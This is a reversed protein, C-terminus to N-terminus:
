AVSRTFKEDPQQSIWIDQLDITARILEAGTNGAHSAVFRLEYDQGPVMGTVTQEIYSGGGPLGVFRDGYGSSGAGGTVQTAGNRIVYPTILGSSWGTPTASVYERAGAADDDEFGSNAFSVPTMEIRVDDVLVVGEASGEIIVDLVRASARFPMSYRRFDTASLLQTKEDTLACACANLGGNSGCIRAQNCAPDGCCYWGGDADCKQSGSCGNLGNSPIHGASVTVSASSSGPGAAALFSLTYPTDTHFGDVVQLVNKGKQIELYYPGATSGALATSKKTAIGDSGWSRWKELCRASTTSISEGHAGELAGLGDVTCSLSTLFAAFDADVSQAGGVCTCLDDECPEGAELDASDCAPFGKFGPVLAKQLLPMCGFEPFNNEVVQAKLAIQALDLPGCIKSKTQIKRVCFQATENFTETGRGDHLICDLDASVTDLVTPDALQVGGLCKCLDDECLGDAGNTCAGFTSGHAAASLVEMCNFQPFRADMEVGLTQIQRIQDKDCSLDVQKNQDATYWDLCRAATFAMAENHDADLECKMQGLKRVVDEDVSQVGGLCMCLDAECIQGAAVDDCDAIHAGDAWSGTFFTAMKECNFEPHTAKYKEAADSAMTAMELIQDASCQDLDETALADSCGQAYGAVTVGDHSDHLVCDFQSKLRAVNKDDVAQIGGLCICLDTADVGGVGDGGFSNGTVAETMVQSCGFQPYKADMEVAFSWLASLDDRDCARVSATSQATNYADYCRAATMSIAEDYGDDLECTKSELMTKVEPLEAQAGGICQCLDEESLGASGVTAGAELAAMVPACKFEAGLGSVAEKLTVLVAPACLPVRESQVAELCGAAVSAVSQPHDEHLLCTFRAARDVLTPDAIQVGGLCVCLETDCMGGKPPTQGLECESITVGTAAKGLVAMCGFQPFRLSMEVALAAVTAQDSSDCVPQKNPDPKPPLAPIGEFAFTWGSPVQSVAKQDDDFNLNKGLQVFRSVVVADAFVVTGGPPSDNEIRLTQTAATAVFTATHRTFQVSDVRGKWMTIGGLSVAMVAATELDSSLGSPRHAGQFSIQYQEGVEFGSLQQSIYTGYGELGVFARGSASHLGGWRHNGNTIVVVADATGEWGVPLQYAYGVSPLAESVHEFDFNRGVSRFNVIGPISPRPTTTGGDAFYKNYEAVCRDAWERYTGPLGAIRCNYKDDVPAYEPMEVIAGGICQCLDFNDLGDVTGPDGFVHGSAAANYVALCNLDPKRLDAANAMQGIEVVVQVSCEPVDGANPSPTAQTEQIYADLCKSALITMPLNNEGFMTCEMAYLNDAFAPVAVMGGGLCECLDRESLQGKDAEDEPPFTNGSLASTLVAQCGFQPYQSGLEVAMLGVQTVQEQTCEEMVAVLGAQCADTAAPITIDEHAEHVVCNLNEDVRESYSEDILTVGGLCRCLDVECIEGETDCDGFTAGDAAANLVTLCGLHPYKAGVEGAMERLYSNQQASCPGGAVADPDDNGGGGGGADDPSGGNVDYYTNMAETAFEGLNIGSVTCDTESTELYARQQPFLAMATGVCRVVVDDTPSGGGLLM